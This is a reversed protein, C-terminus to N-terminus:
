GERLAVIPPTYMVRWTGALGAIIVICASALPAILWIKFNIIVDMNFAYKALLVEVLTASFAALFGAILGIFLFEVILGYRIQKRSAGISSLLASEYKRENHTTQLAAILVIIGTLITFGFVFELTSIVQDMIKRVETILADV